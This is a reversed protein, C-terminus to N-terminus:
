FLCKIEWVKNRQVIYSYDKDDILTGCQVLQLSELILVQM